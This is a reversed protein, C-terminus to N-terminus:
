EYNGEIKWILKTPNEDDNAIEHLLGNRYKIPTDNFHYFNPTADYTTEDYLDKSLDINHSSNAKRSYQRHKTKFKTFVENEDYLLENTQNVSRATDHTIKPKKIDNFTIVLLSGVM